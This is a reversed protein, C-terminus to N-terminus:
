CHEVVDPYSKYKSWMAHMVDSSGWIPHEIVPGKFDHGLTHAWVGDVNIVHGESVMFNFISHQHRSVVTGLDRPFWWARQSVCYVAHHPTIWMSDDVKVMEVSRDVVSEIKVTVDASDVSGDDINLVAVRDGIKVDRIRKRTAGDAMLVRGDGDWCRSRSGWGEYHHKRHYFSYNIGVLDFHLVNEGKACSAFEGLARLYLRTVTDTEKVASNYGDKAYVKLIVPEEDAVAVRFLATEKYWSNLSMKKRIHQAFEGYVDSETEIKDTVHFTAIKRLCRERDGVIPTREWVKKRSDRVTSHLFPLLDLSYTIQYRLPGMYGLFIDALLYASGGLYPELLASVAGKYADVKAQKLRMMERQGSIGDIRKLKSEAGPCSINLLDEQWNSRQRVKEEVNLEPCIVKCAKTFTYGDSSSRDWKTADWGLILQPKRNIQDAAADGFNFSAAASSVPPSTDDKPRKYIRKPKASDNSNISLSEHAADVAAVANHSRLAM